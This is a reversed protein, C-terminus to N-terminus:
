GMVEEEICCLTGDIYDTIRLVCGRLLLNNNDCPYVTTTTSLLLRGHFQYIDDNPKDCQLEFSSEEPNAMNLFCTLVSKQKLNTEGDIAATELYCTSELSTSSLLLIGAPVIQDVGVRVVNGVSRVM